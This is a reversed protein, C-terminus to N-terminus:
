WCEIFTDDKEVDERGNTNSIIYISQYTFSYTPTHATNTHTPSHTPLSSDTSSHTPLIPSHLTINFILWHTSPYSLTSTPPYSTLTLHLTSLIFHITYTLLYSYLTLLFHTPIHSIHLDTPLPHHDTSPSTCSLVIYPLFNILSIEGHIFFFFSMGVRRHLVCVGMVDCVSLSPLLLLGGNDKKDLKQLLPIADRKFREM